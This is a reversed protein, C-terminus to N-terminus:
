KLEVVTVGGDGEGYMGDRMSKVRRDSKLYRRLAAKLAGTGKGHILTVIHIGVIHADDLYKDVLMWADDGNMGRLDLEPKFSDKVAKTFSIGSKKKKDKTTVLSEEEVLRLNKVKTKTTILGARVTINGDKDAPSSVIGEKGINVILVKDGTKLPRPLVYDENSESIVPDYKDEDERLRKRVDARARDLEKGLDDRDRARRVKDLEAFVMDSSMKAGTIMAKAKEQAKDLEKKAKARNEEAERLAAERKAELEEREARAIDREREFDIRMQELKEIVVEFRKNDGSILDGAREIIGKDLGLKESIAFANSKGPTGIILRYTPRLTEVDFECSANCVGETDLAYVKLESYHTTAACLAGKARMDELMSIALAAGEVPDTGANLEDLLVLSGKGCEKLIDIINVMHASFTSLSQEISQEDGIDALIKDFVCVTSGPACPIHLGTQAMMCLLGLTKLTVTKGGTNPGTIVLTDYEGGIGVSIPVAKDKDLLPHRASVLSVRGDENIEPSLGNMRASLTARAFIYSLETILNYNYRLEGVRESCLVSLEGLIRDIEHKESAAFERLRNNEDVVAMPEIFLTAGSSSTDHVLGKVESRYESKVPIVFRGGRQSVINDQLYKSNAGTTYKQLIDRIKNNANRIKRRIDSLEPSADDAIVDDSIITRAIRDEYPKDTSLFGFREDLVTDFRKNTVIYERMGRACRYISATDMLERASLVAGKGARELASTIDCIGSFPPEGKVNELRLADTTEIQLKRVTYVDDSPSANLALERAGDTLACSALMDLIKGYELTRKARSYEGM